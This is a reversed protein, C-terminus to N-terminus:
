VTAPPPCCSSRCSSAALLVVLPFTPALSVVCPVVCPVVCTTSLTLVLQALDKKGINNGCNRNLQNISIYSEVGVCLSKFAAPPIDGPSGRRVPSVGVLKYKYKNVNCTISRASPGTGSFRKKIAAEVKDASMRNVCNEIRLVGDVAEKKQQETHYMLTAAKLAKSKWQETKKKNQVVKISAGVTLRVKELVPPAPVIDEMGKPLVPLEAAGGGPSTLTSVSSDAAPLCRSPVTVSNIALTDNMRTLKQMADQARRVQMQKAASKSDEDTFGAPCMAQPIKLFSAALQITAAQEVKRKFDSDKTSM